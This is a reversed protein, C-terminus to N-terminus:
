ISSLESNILPLVYSARVSNNKTMTERLHLSIRSGVICFSAKLVPTVVNILGSRSSSLSSTMVLATISIALMVCYYAFGDVILVKFVSGRYRADGSAKMARVLTLGFILTDFACFAAWCPLMIKTDLKALGAACGLVPKLLPNSTYNLGQTIRAMFIILCTDVTAGTVTLFVIVRKSREWLAVTRLSVVIQLPIFFVFASEDVSDSNSVLSKTSNGLDFLYILFLAGEIVVPWRTIFFLMKGSTWDTKWILTREEFLTIINDYIMLSFAAVNIYKTAQLDKLGQLLLEMADEPPPGSSEVEQGSNSSRQRSGSIKVLKVSGASVRTESGDINPMLVGRLNLMIRGGVISFSARLVPTLSAALDGRNIPLVVLLILNSIGLSDFDHMVQSMTVLIASDTALAVIVLFIIIVRSKDWLAVTRLIVVIQLPVLFILTGWMGFYTEFKCDTLLILWMIGEVVAPYRTIFYLVKGFGWRTRWFLASEQDVTIVIDYLMVSVAAVDLYRSTYQDQVAVVLTKIEDALSVGSGDNPISM